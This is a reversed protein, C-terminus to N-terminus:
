FGQLEPNQGLETEYFRTAIWQIREGNKDFEDYVTFFFTRITGANTSPAWGILSVDTETALTTAGARTPSVHQVQFSWLQPQSQEAAGLLRKGKGSVPITSGPQIDRYPEKNGFADVALVTGQEVGLYTIGTLGDIRSKVAALEITPDVSSTSM